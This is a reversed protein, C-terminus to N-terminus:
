NYVRNNLISQSQKREKGKANQNYINATVEDAEVIESVLEKKKMAKPTKPKQKQRREVIMEEQNETTRYNAPAQVYVVREVVKESVKKNDNNEGVELPDSGYQNEGKYQRKCLGSVYSSAISVVM